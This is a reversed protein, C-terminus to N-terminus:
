DKYYYKVALDDISVYHGTYWGFNSISFILADSQVTSFDFPIDYSDAGIKFNINNLNFEMLYSITTWTEYIETDGLKKFDKTYDENRDYSWIGMKGSSSHHYMGTITYPTLLRIYHNDNVRHVLAKFEIEIADAEGRECIFNLAPGNDTSKIEMTLCSDTKTVQGGDNFTKNLYKYGSHWYTFQYNYAVSNSNFNDLYDTTIIELDDYLVPIIYYDSSTEVGNIVPCVYLRRSNGDTQRGQFGRREAIKESFVNGNVSTDFVVSNGGNNLIKYINYYQAEKVNDWVVTYSDISAFTQRLNLANNYRKEYILYKNSDNINSTDIIEGVINGGLLLSFSYNYGIDVNFTTDKVYQKGANDIEEVEITHKGFGKTEFFFSNSEGGRIWTLSKKDMDPYILTIIASDIRDKKIKIESRNNANISVNIKSVNEVRNSFNDDACGIISISVSSFSIILILKLFKKLM